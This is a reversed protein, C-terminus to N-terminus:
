TPGTIQTVGENVLRLFCHVRDLGHARFCLTGASEFSRLLLYYDYSIRHDSVDDFLFGNNDGVLDDLNLWSLRFDNVDWLVIGGNDIRAIRGVRTIIIRRWCCYRRSGKDAKAHTHGPPRDQCIIAIPTVAIHINIDIV